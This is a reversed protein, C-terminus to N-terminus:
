SGSPNIILRSLPLRSPCVAECCGCGHCQRCLKSLVPSYIQVSLMKYIDEPDLGVPCVARCEGCGICDIARAYNHKFPVPSPKGTMLQRQNRLELVRPNTASNRVASEDCVAFVAYSSATVPEDLSFVPRGLLPSGVATRKPRSIFGGCEEFLQSFRSGIRAKLVKPRKVASGGVAVYRELPPKQLIIADNVASLTSPGLYICLGLNKKEKREFQRLAIGLERKNRQPYRAGVVILETNFQGSDTIIAALEAGIAYEPLSIVVLIQAACAARAAILAGTAIESLREKLLVYNAVLWPDDFVCRVVLTVPIDTQHYMSLIDNLPVGTGDMDVVGFTEILGRLEFPSYDEWKYRKETHGLMSFSGEMRIIMSNCFVGSAMNWTRNDIIKGPVPSHVNASGAGQRRAILQAEKVTDGVKVVPLSRSGNQTVLPVVALGPLFSLVSEGRGPATRDEFSIGGHLFSYVKV